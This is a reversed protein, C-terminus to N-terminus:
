VLIPFFKPPSASHVFFDSCRYALAFLALLLKLISKEPSNEYGCCHNGTKNTRSHERKHAHEHRAFAPASHVADAILIHSTYAVVFGFAELRSHTEPELLDTRECASQRGVGRGIHRVYAFPKHVLGFGAIESIKSEVVAGLVNMVACILIVVAFLAKFHQVTIHKLYTEVVNWLEM